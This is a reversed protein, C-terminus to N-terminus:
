EIHFCSIRDKGRGEIRHRVMVDMLESIIIDVKEPIEVSEIVGQIVEVTAELGQAAVLRKAFKAMDTAEVAYVKKAGARAAFIALIGSGTGVDLVVKGAFQARNQMCANYYAGTRKHDEMMDKQHYLYSYTCFYNAFDTSEPAEGDLASVSSRGRGAGRGPAAM